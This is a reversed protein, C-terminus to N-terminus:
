RLAPGEDVLEALIAGQLRQPDSQLSEVLPLADVLRNVRHVQDPSMAQFALVLGETGDDRAVQAALRLPEILGPGHLVLEIHQGLDLHPMPEIKMGLASLNRAMLVKGRGCRHSPVPKLYPRRTERRRDLSQTFDRNDTTGGIAQPVAIPPDTEDDLILGDLSESSYAPLIPMDTECPSTTEEPPGLSWENLLSSLRVRLFDSMGADWLIGAFHGDASTAKAVRVVEGDIRLSLGGSVQSPLIVSLSRGLTMRDPTLIRCGRNSIDMLRARTRGRANAELALSVSAGVAIREESRREEGPYLARRILLDWVERHGPLRVKLHFGLEHIKQHLSDSKEDTAIIRFPCGPRAGAPSGRQVLDAHSTTTILLDLPPMSVEAMERTGPRIYDISMEDLLAAVDTLEGDDLLMVRASEQM